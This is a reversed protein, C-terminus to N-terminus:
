LPGILKNEKAYIIHIKVVTWPLKAFPRMATNDGRAATFANTRRTQLAPVNAGPPLRIIHLASTRLYAICHAPM